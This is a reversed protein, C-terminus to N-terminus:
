LTHILYGDLVVREDDHGEPNADRFLSRVGYTRGTMGPVRVEAGKVRGSPTLTGFINTGTSPLSLLHTAGPVGFHEATDETVESVPFLGGDKAKFLTTM